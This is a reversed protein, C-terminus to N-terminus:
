KKEGKAARKAPAKAYLCLAAGLPLLAGLLAGLGNSVLRAAMALSFGVTLVCLLLLPRYLGKPVSGTEGATPAFFRALGGKIKGPLAKLTQPLSGQFATWGETKEKKSPKKEM